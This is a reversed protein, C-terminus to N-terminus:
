VAPKTAIANYSRGIGDEQIESPLAGRGTVRELVAGTRVNQAAAPRPEEFRANARRTSDPVAHLDHARMERGM